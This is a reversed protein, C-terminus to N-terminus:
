KELVVNATLEVDVGEYLYKDCILCIDDLPGIEIPEKLMLLTKENKTNIIIRGENQDKFKIHKFVLELPSEIDLDIWGMEGYQDFDYYTVLTEIIENSNVGMSILKNILRNKFEPYNNIVLLVPREEEPLMEAKERSINDAFARFYSGPISTKLKHVGTKAPCNFMETKLYYLCFCPLQMERKIKIYIRNGCKMKILNNKNNYFEYKKLISIKNEFDLNNFCAITGELCDGRGDGYKKGYEVWSQPTSFKIQGKELFAKAYKKKTCRLVLSFSNPKKWLSDSM